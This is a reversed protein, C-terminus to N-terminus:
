FKRHSYHSRNEESLTALQGQWCTNNAKWCHHKAM